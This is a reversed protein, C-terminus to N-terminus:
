KGLTYALVVQVVNYNSMFKTDGIETEENTSTLARTYRVGFGLGGETEFQAGIALGLEMGNRGATADSGTVEYSDEITTSTGGVTTTTKTDGSSKSGALFGISPGVHINFAESLMINALIPIEIFSDSNKNTSESKITTGLLDFESTSESKTGRSSFHLEPRIAFKESIGINAFGGIFFGIGTANDPAEYGEPEPDVSSTVISVNLGLTPGFTIDQASVTATVAVAALLITIKKM